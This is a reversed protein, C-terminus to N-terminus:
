KDLKIDYKFKDGRAIGVAYEIIEDKEYTTREILMSPFGVKTQLMKAEEKGTSVSQLTEKAKTFVVNYISTFTEYLSGKEVVETSLDPFREYPICSTVIMMPEGDAFRLRTFRYIKDGIDKNMKQAIKKDCQIIEFEVVKTSAKKGLKKMEETFSYFGFLEQKYNKPSVFTGKGHQIYIYREKELERIAQRVTTRSIKYKDCLEREAPIQDDEGLSGNEIQKMLINMLQVYVPIRSYKDITKM